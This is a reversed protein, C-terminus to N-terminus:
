RKAKRGTAKPPVYLGQANPAADNFVSNAAYQQERRATEAANQKISAAYAKEAAIQEAAAEPGITQKLKNFRAQEAKWKQQAAPSLNNYVDAKRANNQVKNMEKTLTGITEQNAANTARFNNYAGIGRHAGYGLGAGLGAGIAANRIANEEDGAFYGGVGGLMSGGALYPIMGYSAVKEAYDAEAYIESAIKMREEACEYLIESAEKEIMADVIDEEDPTMYHNYLGGGIGGALAAGAGAMGYRGTGKVANYAGKAGRSVGGWASKAANRTDGWVHSGMAKARPMFGEVGATQGYAHHGMIGLGGLGAGIGAGAAVSPGYDSFMSSQADAVGQAYADEVAAYKALQAMEYLDNM